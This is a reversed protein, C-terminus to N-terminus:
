RRHTAGRSSSGRGVVSAVPSPAGTASKLPNQLRCHYISVDFRDGKRGQCRCNQERCKARTQRLGTPGAQVPPDSELIDSVYVLLGSGVYHELM